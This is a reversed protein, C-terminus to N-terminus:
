PAENQGFPTPAVPQPITPAPILEPVMLRITPVMNMVLGFAQVMQRSRDDISVIKQSNEAITDLAASIEAFADENTALIDAFQEDTFNM